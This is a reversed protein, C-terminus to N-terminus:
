FNRMYIDVRDTVGENCVPQYSRYSSVQCVAPLRFQFWIANLSGALGHMSYQRFDPLVPFKLVIKQIGPDTGHVKLMTGHEFWVTSAEISGANQM